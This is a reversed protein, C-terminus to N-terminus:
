GLDLESMEQMTRMAAEIVPFAMLAGTGEGLRMELDLLPKLSLYNLAVAHGPEASNHGAILYHVVDPRMQAAILAAAASVVGDVVVPVRSAAAKLMAGVMAGIEYGGLKMLTDTDGPANVELARAVADQKRALAADDIGTGRGTADEPSSGTITAIIASAATTNGIGMEGVAALDLGLNLHTDIVTMGAQLAQGAEDATMAPGQTFDRTCYGAKLNAIFEPKTHRERMRDVPSLPLPRMPLKANVGADVVVVFAGMQRALVNVAADGNLFQRVMYATVSQPVTSVGQATLGHDGAFVFVGKRVPLWDIRGTMGALRVALAELIGFAGAPKVRTDLRQQAQAEAEASTPPITPLDPSDPM